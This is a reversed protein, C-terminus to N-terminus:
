DIEVIYEKELYANQESLLKPYWAFMESLFGGLYDCFDMKNYLLDTYNLRGCYQISIHATKENPNLSLTFTDGERIYDIENENYAIYSIDFCEDLRLTVSDNQKIDIEFNCNNQIKNGTKLQMDYKTILPSNVDSYISNTDVKDSSPYNCVTRSNAFYENTCLCIIVIIAICSSFAVINGKIKFCKKCLLVLTLILLGTLFVIIWSLITESNFPMGYATYKERFPEDFSINILNFFAGAIKNDLTNFSQSVQIFPTFLFSIIVVIIYAAKSKLLFGVGFGIASLFITQALTICILYVIYQCFLIPSTHNTIAGTLIFVFAVLLNSMCFTVVALYKQLILSFRKLLSFELEKLSHIMYISIIPILATLYINVSLYEEAFYGPNLATKSFLLILSYIIAPVNIVFSWASFLLMKINKKYVM